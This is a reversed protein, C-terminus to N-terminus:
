DSKLVVRNQLMDCVDELRKAANSCQLLGNWERVYEGHRMQGDEADHGTISRLQVDQLKITVQGHTHLFGDTSRKVPLKASLCIRTSMGVPEAHTNPQGAGQIGENWRGFHVVTAPNFCM